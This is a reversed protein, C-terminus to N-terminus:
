RSVSAALAVLARMLEPGRASSAQENAGGFTLWRRCSGNESMAAPVGARRTFGQEGPLWPPDQHPFGLGFPEVDPGVSSLGGAWRCFRVNV